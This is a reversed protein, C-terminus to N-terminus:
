ILIILTSSYLIFGGIQDSASCEDHIIPIRICTGVYNFVSVNNNKLLWEYRITDYISFLQPLSSAPANSSTPPWRWRPAAASRARRGSARCCLEARASSTASATARARQARPGPGPETCGEVVWGCVCSYVLIWEYQYRSCQCRKSRVVSRGGGGGGGGGDGGGGRLLVVSM